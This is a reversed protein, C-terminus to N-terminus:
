TPGVGHTKPIERDLEVRGTDRGQSLTNAVRVTDYVLRDLLVNPRFTPSWRSRSRWPKPFPADVRDGAHGAGQGNVGREVKLLSFRDVGVRHGHQEAAVLDDELAAVGSISDVDAGPGATDTTTHVGRDRRHCDFLGEPDNWWRKTNQNAVKTFHGLHEVVMRNVESQEGPGVVRGGQDRHGIGLQDRQRRLRRCFVGVDVAVLRDFVDHISHIGELALDVELGQLVGADTADHAGQHVAFVRM